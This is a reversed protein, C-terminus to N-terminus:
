APRSPGDSGLVDAMGYLGAPRGVIWRTAALAGDAFLSRDLASHALTVIEREGVFSVAHEGVVGGGRSVAFGIEGVARAGTRPGDIGAAVDALKVARGDAAATGLMLATGSPADVKRRHHAEFIEIDYEPGLAKAAQRVLSVLLNVGLSFNGSQLVPVLRAAAEIALQQEADLGTVGTVLPVGLRGCRQAMEVAAVPTSVDLVANAASVAADPDAAAGDALTAGDRGIAAVCELEPHVEIVQLVARGLRGRAGSVAIRIRDAM